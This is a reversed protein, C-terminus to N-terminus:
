YKFVYKGAKIFKKPDVPKGDVLIEYHVHSGNSRGASITNLLATTRPAAMNASAAQSVPGFLTPFTLPPPLLGVMAATLGAAVPLGWRVWRRTDAMEIGLISYKHGPKFNPNEAM